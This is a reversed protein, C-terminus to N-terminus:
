EDTELETERAVAPLAHCRPEAIPTGREYNMKTVAGQGLPLPKKKACYLLLHVSRFDYIYGAHQVRCM